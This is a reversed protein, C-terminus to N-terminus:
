YYILQILAIKKPIFFFHYINNLEFNDKNEIIDYSDKITYPIYFYILTNYGAMIFTGNCNTVNLIEVDNNIINLQNNCSFYLLSNRSQYTNDNTNLVKILINKYKRNYSFKYEFNIFLYYIKSKYLNFNLNMNSNDIYREYLLWNSSKKLIMHTKKGELPKMGYFLSYNFKNNILDNLQLNGGNNIEFIKLDESIPNYFINTQENIYIFDINFKKDDLISNDFNFSSEENIYKTLEESFLKIMFIDEENTKIFIANIYNLKILLYNKSTKIENNLSILKIFNNDNNISIVTYSEVKEYNKKLTENLLFIYNKGKNLVYKSEMKNIIIVEHIEYIILESLMQSEFKIDLIYYNYIEFQKTLNFYKNNTNLTYFNTNNIAHDIKYSFYGKINIINNFDFFLGFTQNRNISEINYNIHINQENIIYYKKELFKNSYIPILNIILQNFDPFHRFCYKNNKELILSNNEIDILENNKYVEVISSNTENENLIYDYIIFNIYSDEKIKPLILNLSNGLNFDHIYPIIYSSSSINLTKNKTFDYLELSGSIKGKFYFYLEKENIIENKLILKLAFPDLTKIFYCNFKNFEYNILWNIDQLSCIEGFFYNNKPNIMLIMDDIIITETSEYKFYFETQNKEFNIEEFLKLIQINEINKLKRLKKINNNIIENNANNRIELKRYILSKISSPIMPRLPLFIRSQCGSMIEQDKTLYNRNQLFDSFISLSLKYDHNKCLFHDRKENYFDDCHYVINTNDDIMYLGGIQSYLLDSMSYVQLYDNITDLTDGSDKFIDVIDNLLDEVDPHLAFGIWYLAFDVGIMVKKIWKFFFDVGGLPFLTAIDDPRAIRYIRGNMLNTFEKAFNENGVKPQGFTILINQASYNYEKIYYFSSLTAIAGGISHGIFIVQYDTNNIGIISGLKDFLDKKILNFIDLYNEMVDIYKGEIEIDLTKKGQFVFEDILEFFTSTGPFTVVIKKYEDNKLIVFNYQYLFQYIVKKIDVIKFINKALASKNFHLLEKIKNSIESKNYHLIEKIQGITENKNIELIAPTELDLLLKENIMDTVKETATDVMKELFIKLTDSLVIDSSNTDLYDATDPNVNIFEKKTDLVEKIKKIIDIIIDVFSKEYNYEKNFVIEWKDLINGCCEKRDIKIESCYSLCTFWYYYNIM